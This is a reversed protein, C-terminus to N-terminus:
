EKIIKNGHEDYDPFLGNIYKQMMNESIADKFEIVISSIQENMHNNIEQMASNENLIKMAKSNNDLMIYDHNSDFGLGASFAIFNFNTFITMLDIYITNPLDDKIYIGSEDIVLYDYISNWVYGKHRDDINYLDINISGFKVTKKVELDKNNILKAMKAIHTSLKRNAFTFLIMFIIATVLFFGGVIYTAYIMFESM